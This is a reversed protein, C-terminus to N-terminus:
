RFLRLHYLAYELLVLLLAIVAVWKWTERVSGREKDAAVPRDGVVSEDRPQINSEEADLLNVAFGREGDSRKVRYVGLRETNKFVFDGQNTRKLTQPHSDPNDPTYVNIEPDTTDPRMSKLQGPQLNEDAAADSVN